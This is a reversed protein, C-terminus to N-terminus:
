PTESVSLRVFLRAAASVPFKVRAMGGSASSDEVVASQGSLAVIAHGRESRAATSWAQLNSSVQVEYVLGVREPNRLFAFDMMGASLSTEIVPQSAASAPDTAFAFELLNSYGDRDPDSTSAAELGTLGQQAAWDSFRFLLTNLSLDNARDFYGQSGLLTLTVHYPEGQKLDSLALMREAPDLAFPSGPAQEGAADQVELKIGTVSEAEANFSWHFDFATTTVNSYSLVPLPLFEWATSGTAAASSGLYGPQPKYTVQVNYSTGPLLGIVDMTNSPGASAFPSGPGPQGASSVTIEVSEVGAAAATSTWNIRLLRSSTGPFTIQPNPLQIIAATNRYLVTGGALYGPNPRYAVSVKISTSPTLGTLTYSSAAAAPLIFPSGPLYAGDNGLTGIRASLEVYSIGALPANSTWNVKMSTPTVNTFTVTPSPLQIPPLTIQYVVTGGALYGARPDYAVSVKISTSPNLGTFTYSGAAAAPQNFPAGPLLAGDNGSTGERANIGVFNIGALPANSTWNIKMSTPTVNTFTVAPAPLQIAPGTSQYVVTGGALYGANPEYSVSVKISTSPNLGTFIYSGSVAAPQNFPAGPLLSGDNGPTGERANIGVFNIGAAPASSTWNVKMSTATVNTFTVTPSPLQVPPTYTVSVPGGWQAADFAGTTDSRTAYFTRTGNALTSLSVTIDAPLQTSTYSTNGDSTDTSAHGNRRIHVRGPSGFNAAGSAPRVRITATKATVDTSMIAIKYGTGTAYTNLVPSTSYTQAIAAPVGLLTALAALTHHIRKIHFM